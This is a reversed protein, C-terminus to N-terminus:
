ARLVLQRSQTTSSRGRYARQVSTHLATHRRRSTPGASPPALVSCCPRLLLMAGSAAVCGGGGNRIHHLAQVDVGTADCLQFGLQLLENDLLLAQHLHALWADHLALSHEPLFWTSRM